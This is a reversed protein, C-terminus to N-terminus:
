IKYIQIYPTENIYMINDKNALGLSLAIDVSKQGVLNASTFTALANEVENKGVHEGVYFSRYKELDMCIKEDELVKGILEKDCVAVVKGGPGEHIRMYM